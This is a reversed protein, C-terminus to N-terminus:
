QYDSSPHTPATCCRMSTWATCAALSHHQVIPTHPAERRSVVVWFLFFFFFLRALWSYLIIRVLRLNRNDEKQKPEQDEMDAITLSNVSMDSHTVQVM